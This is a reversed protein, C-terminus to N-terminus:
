HQFYSVTTPTIAALPLSPLITKLTTAFNKEETLEHVAASLKNFNEVFM